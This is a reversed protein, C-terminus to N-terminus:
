YPMSENENLFHSPFISYTIGVGLLIGFVTIIIVYSQLKAWFDYISSRQVETFTTNIFGDLKSVENNFGNKESLSTLSCVIGNIHASQNSLRKAEEISCYQIYNANERSINKVVINNGNIDVIDGININLDDALNEELIIGDETVDIEKFNRDFVHILQSTDSIGNILIDRTNGNINLKTEYYVLEESNKVCDMNKIKNAVDTDLPKSFYVQCDYVLRENFMHESIFRLSGMFALSIM